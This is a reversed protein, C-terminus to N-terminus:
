GPRGGPEPVAPTSGAVTADLARRVARRVGAAEIAAAGLLVAPVVVLGPAVVPLALAAALAALYGRRLTLRTRWRPQWRWVVATTLRCRVCPGVSVSLDWPDTPSGPTVTRWGRALEGQLATLWATRDGTWPPAVDDTPALARGRLRGWTRVFPQVAHLVGALCRLRVPAPEGRGPRIAVAALAAYALVLLVASVPLALAWPWWGAALAGALAVPASLPLLASGLQVAADARHRLVRQYPATGFCGHYLVPRLVPWRMRPSSYLFGNWRAQGLRNFREAHRGSVMRESRGYNRQQRLYRAVTDRRHHWVQAAHAFGIEHGADLLRWCVDVDDGASTYAPDFGGLGALIERRFAMNCGAVHEARDDAVLVQVPGGPSASVVREQFGAGPVPFNPGGTAAVGDEMSLALHYPWDPDCRADADLYAVIEGSAAALGANRAASLGGHDLPLLRFPYRAAIEATGDTSGDDCVIVELGPYDVARLSDLCDALYREEDYACVVVSVSPWVPRLDRVDRRAWEEVAALAAKPRRDETTIGFGWGGVPEGGVSWEDTWSFVCAGAAGCADVEALQAALSQAQREAGHVQEALGLESIVVPRDDALVHLHSAYRRLTGPHELFVNFALFDAGEVDLYETTPYNAYTVLLDPATQHAHAVLQSLTDRVRGISEVRVLDGPVENGIVLGLVASERGACVAVADDVARRGADLVRRHEAPGPSMRWDAYDLGVLLRLGEEAATEVLDPPPVAYTRVTTLGLASMASLDRRIGPLEPFPSGDSRPLFSGYTVGRVPFTRGGALFKKGAM